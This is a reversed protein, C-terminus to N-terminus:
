EPPDVSKRLTWDNDDWMKKEMIIYERVPVIKKLDGSLLKGKPGYIAVSQKTDFRLLVQACHDEPKKSNWADVTRFSLIKAEGNDGEDGQWVVTQDKPRAKIREKLKKLQEESCVRSLSKIDGRAFSSNMSKYTALAHSSLQKSSVTLRELISPKPILGVKYAKRFSWISTLKDQVTEKAWAVKGQLGPASKSLPTPFKLDLIMLQQSKIDFDKPLESSAMRELSALQKADEERKKQAQSITAAGRRAGIGAGARLGVRALRLSIM